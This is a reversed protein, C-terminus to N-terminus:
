PFFKDLQYGNAQLGRVAVPVQVIVESGAAFPGDRLEAPVWVSPALNRRVVVTGSADKLDLVLTPWEQPREYTNRLTVELTLSSVDDQPAASSRLASGTIAIADIRREYPVSCAIRECAAELSPRLGPFTNALQARYVYVGQLVLVALGCLILVIWVPTMWGRRSPAGDLFEPKYRGSRRGARPEVFLFDGEETDGEMEVGHGASGIVPGTGATSATKGGTGFVPESRRDATKARPNSITFVPGAAARESRVASASGRM